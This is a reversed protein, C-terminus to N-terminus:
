FVTDQHKILLILANKSGEIEKLMSTTDNSKSVFLSPGTSIALNEVTMKNTEAKASIQRALQCFKQLLTRDEPPLAAISAKLDQIRQNEDVSADGAKLFATRAVDGKILGEKNVRFIHKLGRAMNHVNSDIQEGRSLNKLLKETEDHQGSIRFLGEVNVQKGIEDMLKMAAAADNVKKKGLMGRITGFVSSSSKVSKAMEATSKAVAEMTESERSPPFNEKGVQQEPKKQIDEKRIRQSSIMSENRKLKAKDPKTPEQPFRPGTADPINAMCDERCNIIAINRRFAIGM